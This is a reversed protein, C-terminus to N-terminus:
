SLARGGRIPELLLIRFSQIMLETFSHPFRPQLLVFISLLHLFSVSLLFLSLLDSTNKLQGSFDGPSKRYRSQCPCLSSLTVCMVFDARKREEKRM